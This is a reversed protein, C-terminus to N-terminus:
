PRRHLSVIGSTAAARTREAVWHRDDRALETVGDPVPLAIPALIRGSSQVAALASELQEPTAAEDLAIGRASGAAVPLRSSASSMTLGSLGDGMAMERPPNVLLLQAGTLERLRPAYSAAEGVLIAYGRPDVLDLLAALRLAETEDPLHGRTGAPSGGDFRAIGAVIPFEARCIPCGLRGDVVDRGDMRDAALVLWTEEHPNPCRLMDVLEIFM